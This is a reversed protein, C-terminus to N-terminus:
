NLDNRYRCWRIAKRLEETLRGNGHEHSVYLSLDVWAARRVFYDGEYGDMYKDVLVWPIVVVDARGLKLLYVAQRWESVHLIKANEGQVLQDGVFKRVFAYTLGATQNLPPMEKLFLYAYETQFLRGGFDAYRDRESTQVLPLGVAVGGKRLQYLLQALPMEVFQFDGPVREFVCRYFGSFRGELAGESVTIEREIGAAIGVRVPEQAHSLNLPMAIALLAILLPQYRASKRDM